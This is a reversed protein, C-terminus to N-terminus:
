RPKDEQLPQLHREHPPLQVIRQQVAVLDAELDTSAGGQAAAEGGQTAARNAAIEATSPSAALGGQT